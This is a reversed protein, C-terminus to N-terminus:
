DFDLFVSEFEPYVFSYMDDLIGDNGMRFADNYRQLWETENVVKHYATEHSEFNSITPNATFFVQSYLSNISKHMTM